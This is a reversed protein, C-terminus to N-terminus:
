DIRFTNGSKLLDNVSHIKSNHKSEKIQDSLLDEYVNTEVSKIVGMAMPFEPLDMRTLMYHITDDATYADHILIDGPKIGNEGIKVVKLKPGDLVLGKDSNKGFIM